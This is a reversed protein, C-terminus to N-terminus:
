IIELNLSNYLVQCSGNSDFTSYKGAKTSINYYDVSACFIEESQDYYYDYDSDSDSYVPSIIRPRIIEETVEDILCGDDHSTHDPQSVPKVTDSPSCMNCTFKCKQKMYESFGRTQCYSVKFIMKTHRVTFATSYKM